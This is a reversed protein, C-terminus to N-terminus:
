PLVPDPYFRRSKTSPLIDTRNHTRPTTLSIKRIKGLALLQPHIRDQYRLGEEKMRIDQCMQVSQKLVLNHAWLLPSSCIAYDGRANWIVFGDAFASLAGDIQSFIYEGDYDEVFLDFGQVFPIIKIHLPLKEKAEKVSDFYIWYNRWYENEERRFNWHFHSPYLMPYLVDIYEAMEEIDQGESKLYYWVAFGFVCVGIEVDDGIENRILELFKSIPLCRPGDVNTLRIREVSGDTPFRIYDFAISRIGLDVIEKTIELLYERVEEKYPNIWALGKKDLWVEGSDDYIGCDNYQALYDDRFCVVRAVLKVGRIAAEKILYDVDIYRKIADIKRALEINSAYSLFGYDSKFDVVITNILGSDAMTFIDKLYEKNHAQFPNIYVGRAVSDPDLYFIKLLALIVYLNM